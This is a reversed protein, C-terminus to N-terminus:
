DANAGRADPRAYRSAPVMVANGHGAHWKPGHSHHLCGIHLRTHGPPAPVLLAVAAGAALLVALTVVSAIVVARKM